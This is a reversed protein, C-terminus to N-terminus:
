RSIQAVPFRLAAAAPSNRECPNAPHRESRPPRLLRFADAQFVRQVRENTQEGQRRRHGRSGVRALMRQEVERALQLLAAREIQTLCWARGFQVLGFVRELLRMCRRIGVARAAEAGRAERVQVHIDSGSM